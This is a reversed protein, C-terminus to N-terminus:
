KYLDVFSIRDPLDVIHLDAFDHVPLMLASEEPVIMMLLQAM